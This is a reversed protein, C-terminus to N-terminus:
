GVRILPDCTRTREDARKKDFVFALQAIRGTRLNLTSGELLLYCLGLM